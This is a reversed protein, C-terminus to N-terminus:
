EHPTGTLPSTLTTPPQFDSSMNPHFMFHNDPFLDAGPLPYGSFISVTNNHLLNYYCYFLHQTTINM